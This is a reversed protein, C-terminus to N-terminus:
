IGGFDWFGQDVPMFYWSWSLDKEVSWLENDVVDFFCNFLLSLWLSIRGSVVGVAVM